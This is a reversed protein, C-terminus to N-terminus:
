VRERCSARGIESAADASTGSVTKSVDGAGADGSVTESAAGDGAPKTGGEDAAVDSVEEASDAAIPTGCETCFRLGDQLKTGCETCFKVTFIEKRNFNPFHKFSDHCIKYFIGISLHFKQGM